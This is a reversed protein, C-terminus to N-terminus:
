RCPFAQQFALIAIHGAEDHLLNPNRQAYNVFIRIYQSLKVGEPPCIRLVSKKCPGSPTICDEPWVSPVLDMIAELYDTCLRAEPPIRILDPGITKVGRVYAECSQLVEGGTRASVESNPTLLVFIALVTLLFKSM